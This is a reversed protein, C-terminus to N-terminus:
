GDPFGPRVCGTLAHLNTMSKLATLTTRVTASKELSRSLEKPKLGTLIASVRYFIVRIKSPFLLDIIAIGIGIVVCSTGIVYRISRNEVEQNKWTELKPWTVFCDPCIKSRDPGRSGESQESCNRLARASSFRAIEVLIPELTSAYRTWPFRSGRTGLSIGPRAGMAAGPTTSFPGPTPRCRSTASGGSRVPRNWGSCRAPIAM